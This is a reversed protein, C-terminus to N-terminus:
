SGSECKSGNQPNNAPGTSLHLSVAGRPTNLEASNFTSSQRPGLQTVPASISWSYIVRRSSDCLEAQIQPVRQVKDTLNTIRGTLTLLDNGSALAQRQPKGIPKVDFPSEEAGASLNPFGFWSIAAVASLMLAAAVISAITWMRAPNRRPRFPAEHAFADFDPDAPPEPGLMASTEPRPAAAPMDRAQGRQELRQEAPAPPAVIPAAPRSGPLPRGPASQFWSNKCAACRVQRGSAGIASDPVVYRTNCAPCSLIM